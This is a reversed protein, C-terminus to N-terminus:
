AVKSSCFRQQKMAFAGALLAMGQCISVINLDGQRNAYLMVWLCESEEAYGQQM